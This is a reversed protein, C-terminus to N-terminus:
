KASQMIFSLVGNLSPSAPKRTTRISSAASTEMLFLPSNTRRHVFEACDRRVYLQSFSDPQGIEDVQIAALDAIFRLDSREDFDLFHWLPAASCFKLDCM